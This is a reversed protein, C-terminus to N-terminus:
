TLSSNAPLQLRSSKRLCTEMTPELPGRALFEFQRTQPKQDQHWLPRKERQTHGHDMRGGGGRGGGSRREEWGEEGNRERGKGEGGEEWGKAKKEEEEEGEKM